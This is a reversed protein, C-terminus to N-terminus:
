FYAVPNTNVKTKLVAFTPFKEMLYDALLEITFQESEFHGVDTILIRKDADFFQHYKFDGTIFADAGGAIAKPLLFSGSGGCFAVTKVKKGLKATHRICGTNLAEKVHTLFDNEFMPEPLEGIMGAGLISNMNELRHIDYAVEEYPHAKKLASVAVSKLHLPILVEVRDEPEYHRVDKEGKYPKAQANAKYTGTGGHKFSCEEYNGIHGAGIDFMAKLIKDTYDHPVYTVLKFLSESKPDLIRTNVVGLKEAIKQNVGVQVNDLNTHIAYIAIDHKIAKMVVREIYNKGTLRKLGSFVIPHHAVILGAKQAIAEDVVEEICDLCVIVKKIEAQSDGVILGSNDYNEQYVVPAFHELRDIINQIKM